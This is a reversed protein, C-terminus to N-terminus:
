YYNKKLKLKIYKIRGGTSLKSDQYEVANADHDIDCIFSYKDEQNDNVTSFKEDLSLSSFVKTKRTNEIDTINKDLLDYIYIKDVNDSKSIDYNIANGVTQSKGVYVYKDEIPAKASVCIYKSSSIEIDVSVSTSANYDNNKNNGNALNILSIVDSISNNQKIYFEFKSNFLELQEQGQKADYKEGVSGGERFLYVFTSLIMIGVLIGAAMYIAKSANEM